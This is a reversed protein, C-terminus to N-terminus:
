FIAVCDAESIWYDLVRPVNRFEPMAYFPM